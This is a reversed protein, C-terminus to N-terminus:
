EFVVLKDGANVTDGESVLIEKVTGAEPVTIENEMKMASLIIAIDGAEVKNGVEVNVKVIMGNMPATIDKSEGSVATATPKPEPVNPAVSAPAINQVAPVGSREEVDVNYVKNNVTIRLYKM